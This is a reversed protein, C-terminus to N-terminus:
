KVDAHQLPFLGLIADQFKDVIYLIKININKYM